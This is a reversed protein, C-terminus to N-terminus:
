GLEFLLFEKQYM